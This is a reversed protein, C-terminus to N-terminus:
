RNKRYEKPSVGAYHKFYKGFFSQNAFNLRDAIEQINMSTSNLLAKAELIVFEDIWEGVTKGSIEKVVGSLHKATMCLQDAYFKVSRESQYSQILSEYFHEFIYEKRSKNSVNSSVVPAHSRFINYLEFFFSQMLGVVVEKRYADEKNKLRKRIFSYYDLLLEQENATLDLCPYDKLYFFLSLMNGMKPLGELLNKSIAFFIGKFDSSVERNEIIQSPLVVVMRGPILEYDRLSINFNTHGHLCLGISLVELKSPSDFLSIISETDFIAIDNDVVDINAPDIHKSHLVSSVGIKFVSQIDM